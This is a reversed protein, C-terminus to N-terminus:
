PVASVSPQRGDGSGPRSPHLTPFPTTYLILFHGRLPVASANRANIVAADRESEHLARSEETGEAKEGEPETPSRELSEPPAPTGAAQRRRTKFPWVM